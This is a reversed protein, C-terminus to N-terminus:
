PVCTALRNVLELTTCDTPSDPQRIQNQMLGTTSVDRLVPESRAPGGTVMLTSEGLGYCPFFSSRRFGIPSFKDTFSQLTHARIREAGVYAIRWSSLDLGQLQEDTTKDTCLRYMFDPGGCTTAKNDSILQLLRAPHIAFQEPPICYSTIKTFLATLYSGVLGMDHYHPLWTVGVDVYYRAEMRDRIM